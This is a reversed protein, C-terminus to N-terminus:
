VVTREAIKELLREVVDEGAIMEGARVERPQSLAVRRGRAMPINRTGHQLEVRKMGAEFIGDMTAYRPLADGRVCTVVTPLPADYLAIGITRRSRVRITNTAPDWDIREAGTVLPVNLFEGIMAGVVGADDDVAREGCLVLESELARIEDALLVAIGRADPAEGPSVDVVTARDAGMALGNFITDDVSEHAVTLLVVEGGHLDRLRLAEELAFEDFPNIAPVVGVLHPRLLGPRVELPAATDPVQKVCVAIRM